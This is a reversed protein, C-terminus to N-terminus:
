NTENEEGKKVRKNWLDNVEEKSCLRPTTVGCKSCVIWYDNWIKDGMRKPKGGCFPCPKLRQKNMKKVWIWLKVAILVIIM